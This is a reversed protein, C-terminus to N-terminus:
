GFKSLLAAEIADNVDVSELITALPIGFTEDVLSLFALFRVQEIRNESAEMGLRPMLDLMIDIRKQINLSFISKDNAIYKGSKSFIILLLWLQLRKEGIQELVERISSAGSAKFLSTSGVFQLLQMSLENHHQLEEAVRALPENNQLMNYIRIVGLHKPSISEQQLLAPQAFFNGQFYEFGLEKYSEFMESFEIKQAILKFAAFRGIHQELQEIDTMMTDFKVYTIHPFLPSFSKHYEKSLSINDLAFEYGQEHLLAVAEIERHSIVMDKSLEFVFLDTPLTSLIESLLIGSDINVFAKADGVCKQLGIQNLLNVLVTSTAHRLNKAGSNGEENRYFLEYGFINNDADFIPQRAIFIQNTM